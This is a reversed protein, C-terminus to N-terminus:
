LQHQHQIRQDAGHPHRDAHDPHHRHVASGKVKWAMLVGTLLLGILALLPAGTTINSLDLLNNGATVIGANLLRDPLHVPRHGRQHAAKLSAPISAIIKSRLPSVTVALFILGSIFM